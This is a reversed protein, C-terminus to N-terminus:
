QFSPPPLEVWMTKIYADVTLADNGTSCRCIFVVVFLFLVVVVVVVISSLSKHLNVHLVDGSEFQAQSVNTDLKGM